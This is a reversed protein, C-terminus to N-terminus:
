FTLFFRFRTNLAIRICVEASFIKKKKLYKTTNLEAFCFNLQSVSLQNIYSIKM